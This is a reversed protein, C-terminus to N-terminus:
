RLTPKLRTGSVHRSNKRKGAELMETAHKIAAETVELGASMRAIEKIRENGEILEISTLTRGAATHKRHSTPVRQQKM